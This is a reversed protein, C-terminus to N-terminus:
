YLSLVQTTTCFYHNPLHLMTIISLIGFLESIKILNSIRPDARGEEYAGVLSRKLNLADAFTQQTHGANKRLFKINESVTSM